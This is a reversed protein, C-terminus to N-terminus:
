EVGYGFVTKTPFNNLVELVNEDELDKEEYEWIGNRGWHEHNWLGNENREFLDYEGFDFYAKICNENSIDNM